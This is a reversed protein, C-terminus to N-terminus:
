LAPLLLVARLGGHSSEELKFRGGYLAALESVISLGLGSGPVTQDLRRGRKTAEEREDPSLGPGDDSVCIRLMGREGARRAPEPTIEIDVRKSAWKCANDVLNGLMEELDQKEGRFSLGPATTFRIDLNKDEHIRRMARVLRDSIDEVNAVIGFVRRQAAMQARELHRSIQERMQGSQELVKGALASDQQRAENVLVSLPTKLAHALNGVHTRAREVVERNSEILANLEVALPEIESPFDGKLRDADGTRIAYLATRMRDLPKLGIQVQFIVAIVLGIGLAALTIAVKDRFAAVNDHVEDANGAVAIRFVGTDTFTIEREIVRLEEDGPGPVYGRWTKTDDVEAGNVSPMPFTDGLLSGSTQVIAGAADSGVQWYWGSLPLEFRPEGLNGPEEMKASPDAEAVVAGVLTKLYVGLREDFAKEVSNQYLTTLIFGAVVLAIASWVGATLFLRTSLSRVRM